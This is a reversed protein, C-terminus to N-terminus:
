PMLELRVTKIGAGRVTDLTALAAQLSADPAGSVIVPRQSDTLREALEARTLTADGWRVRGDATVTLTLWNEHDDAPRTPATPRVDVPLDRWHSFRTALMFFVLLIFVVDILPTLSVAPSRHREPELHM